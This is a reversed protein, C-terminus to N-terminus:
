VTKTHHVVHQNFSLGLIYVLPACVGVRPGFGVQSSDGLPGCPGVTFIFIHFIHCIM